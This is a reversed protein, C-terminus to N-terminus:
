VSLLWGTTQGTSLPSGDSNELGVRNESGEGIAGDIRIVIALANLKIKFICLNHRNDLLLSRGLSNMNDFSDSLDATFTSFDITAAM